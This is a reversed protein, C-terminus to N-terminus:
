MRSKCIDNNQFFPFRQYGSHAYSWGPELICINRRGLDVVATILMNIGLLVLFKTYLLKTHNLQRHVPLLATVIGANLIVTKGSIHTKHDYLTNFNIQFLKKKEVGEPLANSSYL